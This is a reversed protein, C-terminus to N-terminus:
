ERGYIKTIMKEKIQIKEELIKRAKKENRLVSELLEVKDRLQKCYSSNLFDTDAQEQMAYITEWAEELREKYATLQKELMEIKQKNTQKIM